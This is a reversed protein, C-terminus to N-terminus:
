ELRHDSGDVPGRDPDTDRHRERHVDPEDGVVLSPDSCQQLIM